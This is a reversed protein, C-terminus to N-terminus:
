ITTLTALETDTLASPFLQLEQLKGNFNANGLGVGIFDLVSLPNTFAFPSTSSTILSGNIYVKSGGSKYLVAVKIFETADTLTTTHFLKNGSQRILIKFENLNTGYWMAIQNSASGDSINIVSSIPSTNTFSAIKAYLVDETQGIVDSLGTTSSTDAVRTVATGSTTPIYSTPYSGAEVQAGFIYGGSVGDGNYVPQNVSDLTYGSTPLFSVNPANTTSNTTYTMSVRYWGNGYDEISTRTANATSVISQSSLDYIVYPSPSQGGIRLFAYSYEDAKYFAFASHAASNTSSLVQYTLKISSGSDAVIKDANKTGDPSITDNATVSVATKTWAANDFSESYTILNTRQPELLLSGCGGGTYDIRPVGTAVSEILGSENVRTASSARTFTLDGTGDVPKQAYIKSEKYGSPYMILSADDYLSM